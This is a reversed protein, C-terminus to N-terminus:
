QRIGGPFRTKDLPQLGHHVDGAIAALNGLLQDLRPALAPRLNRAAHPKGLRHRMANEIEILMPVPRPLGESEGADVNRAEPLNGEERLHRIHEEHAPAGLRRPCLNGFPRPAPEVRRQHGTELRQLPLRIEPRLQQGIIQGLLHHIDLRTCQRPRHVLVIQVIDGGSKRLNDVGLARKGRAM